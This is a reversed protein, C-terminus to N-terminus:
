VRLARLLGYWEQRLGIEEAHLGTSRATLADVHAVGQAISSSLRARVATASSIERLADMAERREDLAAREVQLDADVSGLEDRIELLRDAIARLRPVEARDGLLALLAPVYRRDPESAVNVQSSTQQVLDIAVEARAEAGALSAPLFYGQPTVIAGEPLSRPEFGPVADVFAYATEEIAHTATMTVHEERVARLSLTLVGATLSTARLEDERTRSTRSVTVSREIAYPVFAHAHAAITGTVGDGVFRDEAYIAVPGTLLAADSPNRFLVARYPHMGSLSGGPSPKFVLAAEGDTDTDVFPVLGSEGRGLDFGPVSSFVGGEESPHEEFVLTANPAGEESARGPSGEGSGEDGVRVGARTSREPLGRQALGYALNVESVGQAGQVYPAVNTLQTEDDAAERLLHGNADFRPRYATEAHRLDFRFSLPVETSLTLAVDQWPESTPNEVVALGQLHVHGAEGVVLRYSPRWSSAETVYSVRVEDGGDNSRIGVRLTVDQGETTPLLRVGTVATGEGGVVTLSRIVDDVQSAPVVLDLEGNPATGRREFHALGNEYLVVRELHLPADARASMVTDRTGACGAHLMGGLALTIGFITLKTARTSRM